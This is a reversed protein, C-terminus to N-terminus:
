DDNWHKKIYEVYSNSSAPAETKQWEMVWKRDLKLVKDITETSPNKDAWKAGELFAIELTINIYFETDGDFQSLFEENFRPFIRSKAADVMDTHRNEDTRDM